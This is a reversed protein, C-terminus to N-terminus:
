AYKKNTHYCFVKKSQVQQVIRLVTKFLYQIFCVIGYKLLFFMIDQFVKIQSLHLVEDM